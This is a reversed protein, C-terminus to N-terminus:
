YSQSTGCSCSGRANPNSIKFGAGMLGDLYDIESGMLRPLMSRDVYVDIGHCHFVEDEDSKKNTFDLVYEFGSCGGPKDGFRLAWGAKGEEECVQKFKEAARKTLNIQSLDIELSLIENLRDVLKNIEDMEKGHSLMGVELTEWTAAGCSACHLGFNTMEQALKQSKQPNQGLIDSIVMDKTIKTNAGSNKSM